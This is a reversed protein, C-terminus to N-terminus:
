ENIQKGVKMKQISDRIKDVERKANTYAIHTTALEDLWYDLRNELQELTVNPMDEMGLAKHDSDRQTEYNNARQQPHNSWHNPNKNNSM